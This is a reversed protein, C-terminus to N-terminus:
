TVPWCRQKRGSGAKRHVRSHLVEFFDFILHCIRDYNTMQYKSMTLESAM